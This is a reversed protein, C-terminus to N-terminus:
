PEATALSAPFGASAMRDLIAKVTPGVDTGVRDKLPAADAVIGLLLGSDALIVPGGSDGPTTAAAWTFSSADDTLLVGDKARGSSSDPLGHGFTKLPAGLPTSLPDTVHGTPGGIERIEADWPVDSALLIFGFDFTGPEDWARVVTGITPFDANRVEDGVRSAVCHGATAAYVEGGPGRLFFGITCFAPSGIADGPRLDTDEPPFAMTPAALVVVTLLAVLMARM